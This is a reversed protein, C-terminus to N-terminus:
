KKVCTIKSRTKPDEACASTMPLKLAEAAKFSSVIIGLYTLAETENEAKIEIKWRKM